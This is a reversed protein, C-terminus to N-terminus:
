VSFYLSLVLSRFYNGHLNSESSLEIKASLHGSSLESCQCCGTLKERKRVKYLPLLFLEPLCVQSNGGKRRVAERLRSAVTRAESLFSDNNQKRSLTHSASSCDAASPCSLDSLLGTSVARGHLWASSPM